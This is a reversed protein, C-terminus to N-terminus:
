TVVGRGARELLALPPALPPTMLLTWRKQYHGYHGARLGDQSWRGM